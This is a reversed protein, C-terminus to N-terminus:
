KTVVAAATMSNAAHLLGPVDEVGADPAGLGTDEGLSPIDWEGDVDGTSIILAM